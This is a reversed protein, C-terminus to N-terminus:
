VAYRSIYELVFEFYAYDKLLWDCNEKTMNDFDSVKKLPVNNSETKESVFTKLLFIM